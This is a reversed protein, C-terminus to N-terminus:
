RSNRSRHPGSLNKPRKRGTGGPRMRTRFRLRCRRCSGSRWPRRRGRANRNASIYCPRQGCPHQPYPRLALRRTRGLTSLMEFPCSSPRALEVGLAEFAQSLPTSLWTCVTDATQQPMRLVRNLGPEVGRGAADPSQATALGGRRGECGSQSQSTAFRPVGRGPECRPRIRCGRLVLPHLPLRTLARRGCPLSLGLRGAPSCQRCPIRM